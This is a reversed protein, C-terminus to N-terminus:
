DSPSIRAAIAHSACEPTVLVGATDGGAAITVNGGVSGIIAPPCLRL